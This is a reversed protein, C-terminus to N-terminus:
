RHQVKNRDVYRNEIYKDFVVSLQIVVDACIKKETVNIKKFVSFFYKDINSLMGCMARGGEQRLVKM